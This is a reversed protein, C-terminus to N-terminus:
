QIVGLIAATTDAIGNIVASLYFAAGFTLALVLIAAIREPTM